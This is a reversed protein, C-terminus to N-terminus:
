APTPLRSRLVHVLAKVALEIFLFPKAIFDNGGSMTCNSRCDIDNLSTIFVVPTNKHQPLARLRTCLEFGSMGPMVVDLIVLDFRKETLLDIAVAPDEACTSTLKAKELAYTVARRSIAEDDVVLIDPLVSSPPAPSCGREALVGLFDVASALTYLTSATITKPKDHLQKLLAELADCLQAIKSVGALGASGTLGHIRHYLESVHKLRAPQGDAKIVAQLHKRISALTAPLGDMFSRHLDAQFEADAASWTSVPPPPSRHAAAGAAPRASAERAEVPPRAATKPAGRPSLIDHVVELLQKPSCNAKALCKTAGAKWAEQVMTTMYTNSFVIVPLTEFGKEARLKTLVELGTMKPLMLDLLVLHPQFSHALALGVEGDLAVEVRYGELCFKNRYINAVLQDDEVILIKKM